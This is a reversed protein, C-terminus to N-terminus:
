EKGLILDVPWCGLTHPGPSRLHDLMGQDTCGAEELADALIPTTSFDREDSVRRALAVVASTLCTSPLKVASLHFPDGVIDRLLHAQAETDPDGPLRLEQSPTWAEIRESRPVAGWNVAHASGCVRLAAGWGSDPTLSEAAARAAWYAAQASQPAMELTREDDIPFSDMHQAAARLAQRAEERVSLPADAYREAVEVATRSRPDDLLHWIRRVCACAFLRLKRESVQGRLFVLMQYPHTSTLWEQPTMSAERPLGASM